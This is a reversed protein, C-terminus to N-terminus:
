KKQGVVLNVRHQSAKVALQSSDFSHRSIEGWLGHDILIVDGPMAREIEADIAKIVWQGDFLIV